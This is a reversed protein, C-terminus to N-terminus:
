RRLWGADISIRCNTTKLIKIIAEKNKEINGTSQIRDLDAIYFWNLGLKREYAQAVSLPDPDNSIVSDSFPQYESRQGGVGQVVQGNLLDLVPIVKM